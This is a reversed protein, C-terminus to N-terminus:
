NGHAPDKPATVPSSDTRPPSLTAPQADDDPSAREDRSHQGNVVVRVQGYGAEMLARALGQAALQSAPLDLQTDRLTAQVLAPSLERLTLKSPGAEGSAAYPQSARRAPAGAQEVEPASAHLGAQAILALSPAVAATPASTHLGAQGALAPSPAAVAMRTVANAISSDPAPALQPAMLAATAVVQPSQRVGVVSVQLELTTHQPAESFNVVDPKGTVSAEVPDSPERDSEREVARDLASRDDPAGESRAANPAVGARRAPTPSGADATSLLGNRAADNAAFASSSMSAQHSAPRASAPGPQAANAAGWSDLWHRELDQLMRRQLQAGDPGNPSPPPHHDIRNM